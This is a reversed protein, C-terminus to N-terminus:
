QRAERLQEALKKVTRARLLAHPEVDPLTEALWDGHKGGPLAERWIDWEDGYEARLTEAASPRPTEVTANM